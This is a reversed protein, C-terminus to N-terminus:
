NLDCSLMKLINLPFAFHQFEYMTIHMKKRMQIGLFSKKIMNLTNM